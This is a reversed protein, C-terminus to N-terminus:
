RDMARLALADYLSRLGVPARQKLEVCLHQSTKADRAVLAARLELHTPRLGFFAPMAMVKEDGVLVHIEMAETRGHPRIRDVPLTAFGTVQAATEPGLLIPIGYSKTEGELRAAVNVADGIVSYDFRRSSGFNGVTCPGTNIGIGIDLHPFEGDRAAEANLDEMKALIRLAARCALAAHDPQDVPANWFAMIADGIYKDVTGGYELIAETAVAFFRNVVRTLVMPDLRESLATFGRL